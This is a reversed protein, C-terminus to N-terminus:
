GRPDAGSAPDQADPEEKNGHGRQGRCIEAPSSPTRRTNTTAELGHDPGRRDNREQDRQGQRHCFSQRHCPVVGMPTFGPMALFWARLSALSAMLSGQVCASAESLRIKM